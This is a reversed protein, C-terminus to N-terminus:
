DGRSREQKHDMEWEFMVDDANTRIGGLAQYMQMAATNSQNTFVFSSGCGALKGIHLFEKILGRAVGKSRHSEVVDISFLFLMPSKSDWRKLIHGVIQGAPEGDVEAILLICNPDALYAALNASASNMDWFLACNAQARAGDQSGLRAITLNM